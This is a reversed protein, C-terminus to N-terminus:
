NLHTVVTIIIITILNFKMVIIIALIIIIIFNIITTATAIAATLVLEINQIIFQKFKIIEKFYNKATKGKLYKSKSFDILKAITIIIFEFLGM